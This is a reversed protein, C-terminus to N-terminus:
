NLTVCGSGAVRIILYPNIEQQGIVPCIKVFALKTTSVSGTSGYDNPRSSGSVYNLIESVYRSGTEVDPDPDKRNRL